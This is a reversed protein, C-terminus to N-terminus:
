SRVDLSVTPHCQVRGVQARAPGPGGWDCQLHVLIRARELTVEPVFVEDEVSVPEDLRREYETWPVSSTLGWREFLGKCSAVAQAYSVHPKDPYFYVNSMRGHLYSIMTGFSHAELTPGARSLRIVLEHPDLQQWAGVPDNSYFLNTSSAPEDFAIIFPATPLPTDPAVVSGPGMLRLLVIVALKQLDFAFWLAVALALVGATALRGATKGVSHM